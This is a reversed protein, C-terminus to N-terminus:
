TKNLNIYKKIIDVEVKKTLPILVYSMIVCMKLKIIDSIDHKIVIDQIIKKEVEPHTIYKVIENETLSSINDSKLEKYKIMGIDNGYSIRQLILSLIEKDKEYLQTVCKNTYIEIIEQLYHKSINSKLTLIEKKIPNTDNRYQLMNIIKKEISRLKKRIEELTLTTTNM